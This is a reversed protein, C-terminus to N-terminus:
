MNSVLGPMSITLIHHRFSEVTPQSRLEPPLFNWTVITRPLFSYKYADVRTSKQQISHACSGRTRTTNIQIYQHLPVEVLNNLIRYLMISRSRARREELTDWQLQQLMRTVSGPDRSSYDGTVFRAAQRQVRELAYIQQLTYPDWVTSAYELVPRVLTTYAQAKVDQPCGRLNRRLFGVSRSAKASTQQIHDNWSLDKNVHVGLYKSGPVSELTHGHLRYGTHIPNRKKSIHITTCKEPHFMMQWDSEWQQLASMDNQLAAKNISRYVLCDDAFIRVPSSVVEPLDNIFVLFLLPGLVTGQPVGSDVDTVTSREGEVM